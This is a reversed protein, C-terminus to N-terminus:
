QPPTGGQSILLFEDAQELIRTHSAVYWTRPIINPRALCYLHYQLPTFGYLPVNPYQAHDSIFGYRVQQAFFGLSTYQQDVEPPEHPTWSSIYYYPDPAFHEVSAMIDSIDQQPSFISQAITRLPPVSPNPHPHYLCVFIGHDNRLQTIAARAHDRIIARNQQTWFSSYRRKWFVEEGDIYIKNTGAAQALIRARLMFDQWFLPDLLGSPNLPHNNRANPGEVNWPPEDAPGWVNDIVHHLWFGPILQVNASAAVPLIPAFYSDADAQSRAIGMYVPTAYRRFGYAGLKPLITMIRTRNPTSGPAYGDQVRYSGDPTYGVFTRDPEVNHPPAMLPPPQGPWEEAAYPDALSDGFQDTATSFPSEVDTASAAAVDSDAAQATTAARGSPGDAAINESLSLIITLAAVIGARVMELSASKASLAIM